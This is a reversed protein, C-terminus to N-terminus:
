WFSTQYDALNRWWQMGSILWDFLILTCHKLYWQSALQLRSKPAPGQGFRNPQAETLRQLPKLVLISFFTVLLQNALIPLHYGLNLRTRCEMWMRQSGMTILASHLWVATSMCVSSKAFIISLFETTHSTKIFVAERERERPSQFLTSSTLMNLFWQTKLTLQMTTHYFSCSGALNLIRSTFGAKVVM